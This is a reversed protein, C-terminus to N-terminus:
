YKFKNLFSITSYYILVFFSLFMFSKAFGYIDFNNASIFIIYLIIPIIVYFIRNEKFKSFDRMVMIRFISLPFISITILKFLYNDTNKFIYDSELYYNGFLLFILAIIFLLIMYLSAINLIKKGKKNEFNSKESMSFPIFIKMFPNFFVLVGKAIAASASYTGLTAQDFIFYCLVIDLNLLLFILFYFIVIFITEKFKFYKVKLSTIFKLGIKKIFYSFFIILIIFSSIWIGLVGSYATRIYFILLIAIIFKSVCLLLFYFSLQYLMKKAELINRLIESSFYTFVSLILFIYLYIATINFIFNIFFILIISFSLILLSYSIVFNAFYRALENQLRINKVSSLKRIVIFSFPQFAFIAINLFTLSLYFSGFSINDLFFNAFYILGFNFVFGFFISTLFFLFKKFDDIKYNLNLKM